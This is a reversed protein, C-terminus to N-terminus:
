QVGHAVEGEKLAERCREMVGGGEGLKEDKDGDPLEIM